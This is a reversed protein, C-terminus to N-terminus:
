TTPTTAASAPTAPPPNTPVAPVAPAPTSTDPGPIILVQGAFIESTNSINNAAALADVTVGYRLAIRYLNEGPAVVHQTGGGQAAIPAFSALVLLVVCGVVFFRYARM